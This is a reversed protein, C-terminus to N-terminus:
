EYKNSNSEKELDKKLDKYKSISSLEDIMLEMIGNDHSSQFHEGYLSDYQNRLSDNQLKFYNVSDTLKQREVIVERNMVSLSSLWILTILVITLRLWWNEEKNFLGM